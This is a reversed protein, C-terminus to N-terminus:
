CLLKCKDFYISVDQVIKRCKEAHTGFEVTLSFTTANHTAEAEIFSESSPNLLKSVASGALNMSVTLNNGSPCETLIRARAYIKEHVTHDFNFTISNSTLASFEIINQNYLFSGLTTGSTSQTLSNYVVSKLASSVLVTDKNVTMLLQARNTSTMTCAASTVGTGFANYNFSTLSSNCFTCQAADNKASCTTCTSHCLTRPTCGNGSEVYGAPCSNVCKLLVPDKFYPETPPCENSMCFSSCKEYFISIDQVMKRCTEGQTGFDISLTFTATTHEIQGEVITETNTTLVSEATVPTTGSLTLLVTM